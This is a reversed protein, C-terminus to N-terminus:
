WPSQRQDGSPAGGWVGAVVGRVAFGRAEGSYAAM